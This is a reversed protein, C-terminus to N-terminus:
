VVAGGMAGFGGSSGGAGHSVAQSATAGSGLGTFANAGLWASGVMQALGGLGRLTSGKQAAARLEADLVEASRAKSTGIQGIQQGLRGLSVNTDLLQDGMGTLNALAEAQQQSRARQEGVVKNNSEAVIAPANGPLFDQNDSRSNLADIFAAKRASVADTDDRLKEASEYSEGLLADQEASMRKQRGQEVNHRAMMANEARQNGFYQAVSGGVALALPIAWPGCM